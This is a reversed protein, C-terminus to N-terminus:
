VKLEFVLGINVKEIQRVSILLGIVSVGICLILPMGIITFEYSLPIGVGILSMIVAIMNGSLFAYSLGILSGTVSCILVEFLLIKMIHSMRYGNSILVAFEKKRYLYSMKYNNVIGAMSVLVVFGSFAYFVAFINSSNKRDRELMDQILTKIVPKDTFATDLQRFVSKTDDSKILIMNKIEFRNFPVAHHSIYVVDGLEMLSGSIGKISYEQTIGGNAVRITDGYGLMSRGAEVESIVAYYGMSFEAPNFGKEWKIHLNLFEDSLGRPDELILCSVVAHDNLIVKRSRVAYIDEVDDLKSIREIEDETFGSNSSIFSECRYDYYFSSLGKVISSSLTGILILLMSITTIITINKQVYTNHVVNKLAIFFTGKGIKPAFLRDIVAVFAKISSIALIVSVVLIAGELIMNALYWKWTVAYIIILGILSIIHVPKISAQSSGFAKAALERETKKLARNLPVTLGAFSVSLGYLVSVVGALLLMGSYAKFYNFSMSVNAYVAVIAGGLAVGFAAGAAAILGNVYLLVSRINKRTAGVTRLTGIYASREAVYVRYLGLLIYVDLILIFIFVLLFFAGYMSVNSDIAGPEVSPSIYQGDGILVGDKDIVKSLDYVYARNVEDRDLGLIEDMRAKPILIVNSNASFYNKNKTIGSVNFRYEQNNIEIQLRDGPKLSLFDALTRSIVAGSGDAGIVAKNELEAYFVGLFDNIDTGYIICKKIDEQNKVIGPYRAIGLVQADCKIDRYSFFSNDDRYVIYQTNGVSSDRIDKETSVKVLNIGNMCVFISACSLAITLMIM